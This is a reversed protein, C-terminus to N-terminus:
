LLEMWVEMVEDLEKNLVEKQLYLRNLEEFDAGLIEMKQEIEKIKSELEKVRQEAKATDTEKKDAESKKSNSKTSTKIKVEPAKVANVLPTISSLQTTKEKENKYYDYNGLYSKFSFDDIAIVRESLKNIFYRDHSIFFITGKFSDLAEEITEISATDLHNTPEDLILLNVDEYLLKSLKLRVREGGSLHKIKKYVNGGFFMFKALHERAKGEPISINERFYELVTLEIDEFELNQPLYAMLVNAGFQVTGQDPQEQGLLMKLFTTKGCGNPGILGVREGYQVFLEANQFIKKQEFSKCLNAATMVVKGSREASKFNLKMTQKEFVPKDIRDMKDLKIQMSAARRFFKNNDAKLAWERLEKISQEMANIKKKQEKFNEFQIRLKEEKQQVYESYNGKYTDCVKDEIEIIKNVVHDLFYRDHSVVIVIGKYNKLYGELWEVSEMDLHNTPEDLLLIDPTDILLKGLVVTTKEGGSLLNFNQQLFQNSFKLGKCIRNLKEEVEYGGKLEYLQSLESYKKLTKELELSELHEMLEELQHMEREIRHVDEFSLNLVDLVKLDGVYQPIQELYACVAEKPVNVWGEDYGLPTPAYPYGACHNLKEIGAILKLITTKGSGNEGVIGVKEGETVIFTINKLVLTADMFKKVGDLSIEFMM